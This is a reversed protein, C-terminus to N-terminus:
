QADDIPKIKPDDIYNKIQLLKKRYSGKSLIQESTCIQVCKSFYLAWQRLVTKDLTDM